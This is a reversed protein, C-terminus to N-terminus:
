LLRREKKKQCKNTQKLFQTFDNRQCPWFKFGPLFHFESHRQAPHTDVTSSLVSFLVSALFCCCVSSFLCYFHIPTLILFEYVYAKRIRRSPSLVPFIYPLSLLLVNSNPGKTLSCHGRGEGWGGDRHNGLERCHDWLQLQQMWDAVSLSLWM